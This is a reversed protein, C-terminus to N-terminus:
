PNLATARTRCYMANLTASEAEAIAAAAFDIADMAYSEAVDADAIAYSAEMEDGARDLDSQVSAVHAQWRARVEQWHPSVKGTSAAGNGRLKDAVATARNRATSAATRLQDESRQSVARVEDSAVKAREPIQEFRASLDVGAMPFEKM